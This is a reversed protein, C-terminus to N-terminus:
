ARLGQPRRQRRLDPRRRSDASQFRTQRPDVGWGNWRPTELARAPMPEATSCRGVTQALETAAGETLFQVVAEREATTLRSGQMRMVGVTLAYRINDPSVRGLVTRNVARPVSNEHCTACRSAYLAQGDPPSSPVQAARPAAVSIGGIIAATMGIGARVISRIRFM